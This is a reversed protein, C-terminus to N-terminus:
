HAKRSIEAQTLNQGTLYGSLHKALSVLASILSLSLLSLRAGLPDPLGRQKVCEGIYSNMIALGGLGMVRSTVGGGGVNGYRVARDLM